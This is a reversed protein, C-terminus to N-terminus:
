PGNYNAIGMENNRQRERIEAYDKKAQALFEPKMPANRAPCTYVPSRQFAILQKAQKAIQPIAQVGSSGCGVIAVRKGSLDVGDRPWQATHYVEGKFADANKFDPYNPENLCGTAMICYTATYTEGTNTKINWVNRKEDYLADTVKTNFKIDKRL